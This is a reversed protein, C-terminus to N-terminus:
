ENDETDEQPEISLIRVPKHKHLDEETWNDEDAPDLAERAFESTGNEKVHDSVEQASQALVFDKADQVRYSPISISFPNEGIGNEFLPKPCKLLLELLDHAPMDLEAALQLLTM